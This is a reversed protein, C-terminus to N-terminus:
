PMRNRPIPASWPAVRSSAAIAMNGQILFALRRFEAPILGCPLARRPDRM